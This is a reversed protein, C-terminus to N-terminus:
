TSLSSRGHWDILTKSALCTAPTTVSSRALTKSSRTSTPVTAASPQMSGTQSATRSSATRSSTSSSEQSKLRRFPSSFTKTSRRVMLPSKHYCSQIRSTRSHSAHQFSENTSTCPKCSKESNTSPQILSTSGRTSLCTQTQCTTAWLPMIHEHFTVTTVLQPRAVQRVGLSVTKTKKSSVPRRAMMM